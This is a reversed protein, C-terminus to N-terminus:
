YNKKKKKKKKCFDWMVDGRSQLRATMNSLTEKSDVPAETQINSKKKKKLRRVNSVTKNSDVSAKVQISSVTKNSYFSIMSNPSELKSRGFGFVCHIFFFNPVYSKCRSTM